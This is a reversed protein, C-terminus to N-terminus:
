RRLTGERDLVINIEDKTMNGPFTITGGQTEVVKRPIEFLDPKYLQELFPDGSVNRVIEADLNVEFLWGGKLHKEAVDDIPDDSGKFSYSVLYTQDDIKRAQWGVIWLSGKRQKLWSQIFFENSLIKDDLTHAARALSEALEESTEAIEEKEETRDSVLQFGRNGGRLIWVNGTQRDIKMAGNEVLVLEYRTTQTHFYSGMLIAVALIVASIVVKM